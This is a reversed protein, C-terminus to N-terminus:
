WPYYKGYDLFLEEGAKIDRLTYAKFRKLIVNVKNESQGHNGDNMYTIFNRKEKAVRYKWTRRQFYCYRIDNGYKNKFEKHGMEEGVFEGLCHSKPIDRTAFVGLGDVPSPRIELGPPISISSHM